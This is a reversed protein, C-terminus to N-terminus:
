GDATNRGSAVLTVRATVTTGTEPTSAVSFSGGVSAMLERMVLLGMRSGLGGVSAPDFGGGDDRVTLLVRGKATRLAVKVHTAHGHRVGNTVAEQAV